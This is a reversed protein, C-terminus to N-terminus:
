GWCGGITESALYSPGTEGEMAVGRSAFVAEIIEHGQEQGLFAGECGGDSREGWRGLRM